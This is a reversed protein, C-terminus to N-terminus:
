GSHSSGAESGGKSFFPTLPNKRTLFHHVFHVYLVFHVYHVGRETMALLAFCDRGMTKGYVIAGGRSKKFIYNYM